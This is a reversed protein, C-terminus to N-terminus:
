SFVINKVYHHFIPERINSVNWWTSKSASIVIINEILLIDIWEHCLSTSKYNLKYTSIVNKKSSNLICFFVLFKFAENENAWDLCLSFITRFSNSYIVTFINYLYCHYQTFSIPPVKKKSCGQVKLLIIFHKYSSKTKFDNLFFDEM